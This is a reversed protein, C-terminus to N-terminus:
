RNNPGGYVFWIFTLEHRPTAAGEDLCAATIEFHKSDPSNPKVAYWVYHPHSDNVMEIVIRPDGPIGNQWFYSDPYRVAKKEFKYGIGDFSTAEPFTAQWSVQGYKPESNFKYNQFLAFNYLALQWAAQRNGTCEAYIANIKSLARKVYDSKGSLASTLAAAAVNASNVAATKAATVKGVNAPDTLDEYDPMLSRWQGNIYGQVDANDFESGDWTGKNIFPARQQEATPTKNSDGFVVGSVQAPSEVSLFKPIEAVEVPYSKRPLMAPTKVAKLTLTQEPM